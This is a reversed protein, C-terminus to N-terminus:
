FFSLWSLGIIQEKNDVLCSDAVAELKERVICGWKKNRDIQKVLYVYMPGGLNYFNYFHSQLTM